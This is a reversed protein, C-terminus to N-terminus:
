SGQSIYLLGRTPINPDVQHVFPAFCGSDQDKEM